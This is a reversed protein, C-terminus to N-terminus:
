RGVYKMGAGIHEGFPRCQFGFKEYFGEKGKVSGLNLHPHDPQKDFWYLITNMIITGIGKSQYNSLVTVDYVTFHLGDGLVRGMGVIRNDDYVSVAFSTLRRIKAFVAFGVTGWASQTYM